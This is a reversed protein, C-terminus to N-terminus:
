YAASFTWRWCSATARTAESPPSFGKMATHPDTTPMGRHDFAWGPALPKDQKAHLVIRGRAVVTTALDLVVPLERGAPIAIAFPNTGFM